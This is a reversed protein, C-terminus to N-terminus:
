KQIGDIIQQLKIDDYFDATVTIEGGKTVPAGDEVTSWDNKHSGRLRGSFQFPFGDATCGLSVVCAGGGSREGIIPIGADMCCVTFLNGCSFSFCSELVVFKFKEKLTKRYERDANDIKGDLNLDAYGYTNYRTDTHPDFDLSEPFDILYALHKMLATEEGGGNISVDILVTEVGSYTSDNLLKYFSSYFGGTPDDPFKLGWSEFDEPNPNAVVHSSNYYNKWSNIDFEFSDFTFVATKGGSLVYFPKPKDGDVRAAVNKRAETLEDRRASLKADKISKTESFTKFFESNQEDNFAPVFYLLSMCKSHGDGYIYDILNVLGKLYDLYSSSKLLTKVDIAYTSLMEDFSLSDAARVKETDPYGNGDDAFGYYGPYGYFYDHMFCLMNYSLDILKKPRECVTGNSAMYWSSKNYNDYIFDRGLEFLYIGEGNYFIEKYNRSTFLQNLVCLPVYADDVGGYIEMGYKKLDFLQTKQGSYSKLIKIMKQIVVDDEDDNTGNMYGAWETCSITDNKVDITIPFSKGKVRYEYTYKGDSYSAKSFTFVDFSELFYRISVYPVYYEGHYFRAYFVDTPTNSLKYFPLGESVFDTSEEQADNYIVNIINTVNDGEHTCSSLSFFLTVAMVSAMIASLIRKKM